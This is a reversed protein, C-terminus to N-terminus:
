KYTKIEWIKLNFTGSGAPHFQLGKVNNQIFVAGSGSQALESVNVTVTITQGNTTTFTKGFHDGSSDTELTPLMLKYSNGDGQVQFSISTMIKLRALTSDDPTGFVGAGWGNANGSIIVEGANSTVTISSGNDTDAFGDGWTIVAATEQENGGGPSLPTTNKIANIMREIVTKSESSNPQGNSRNILSFDGYDDSENHYAPEGGPEWYCPIIGNEIAKSYMYDIFLLRNNQATVTNANNYRYRVPGNEGMIVPINNDTFKTKFNGFTVDIFEKTGENSGWNIDNPWLHTTGDHSFNYPYYLHFGVVQRSTGNAGDSPLNFLSQAQAIKYSTNWGYYLLYRKANNGGTSRVANTFRQNLDNILEYRVSANAGDAHGWDTENAHVENFGQFMLWDGYNIFYDAIQKWVAEYKATIEQRNSQNELAKSFLFWGGLSHNGDHHINIFAKLGANKAYGVVEAVRKLHAEDIKYNPAAGIHGNWTVPIRIIKFGLSALGNFYSQNLKPNGWATEIATPKGPNTWTDVADLSNGANIGITIGEDRFYEMASKVSMAEPETPQSGNSLPDNNENNTCAAM